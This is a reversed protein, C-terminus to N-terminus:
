ACAGLPVGAFSSMKLLGRSTTYMYIGADDGTQAGGIWTGNRDTVAGSLGGSPFTFVKDGTEPKPVRWVELMDVGQDVRQVTVLPSRDSGIALLRLYAGPATLWTTQTGDTLDVRVLRGHSIHKDHRRGM